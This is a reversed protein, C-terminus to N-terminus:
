PAAGRPRAATLAQVRRLVDARRPQDPSNLYRRYAALAGDRDGMAELSMGRLRSAEAGLSGGFPEAQAYELIAAALDALDHRFVNGRLVHLEAARERGSASDLLAESERLAERGRGLQSLLEVRSINVENRLTGRPFRQRYEDLAGLAGTADRLVDRRLRAMEYLAMEASLGAGAAQQNFCLEASRPEGKRAFDLCNAQAAIASTDREHLAAGQAAGHTSRHASGAPSTSRAGDGAASSRPPAAKTPDPTPAPLAPRVVEPQSPELSQRGRSPSPTPPPHLAESRERTDPAPVDLPATALPAGELSGLAPPSPAHLVKVEPGFAIGPAREGFAAWVLAVGAALGFAAGLTARPWAGLSRSRPELRESLRQFAAHEDLASKYERNARDLVPGLAPDHVLRQPEPAFPEPERPLLRETM